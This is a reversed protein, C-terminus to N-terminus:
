TRRDLRCGIVSRDLTWPDVVGLGRGEDLEEIERGSRSRFPSKHADVLPDCSGRGTVELESDLESLEDGM